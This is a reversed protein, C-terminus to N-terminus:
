APDPAAQHTAGDIVQFVEASPRGTADARSWGTMTEAVRNLYTVKGELDTAVVADGISNLTVRAREQEAFLAAEAERLVRTALTRETVDEVTHVHGPTETGDPLPASSVRAWVVSGDPRQFRLETRFPTRATAAGRWEAFVRRRDEPHIVRSWNNGSAQEWSLGSIKQYAPNTYVCGGRADSVLIGLPAADSVARFRAESSRLADQTTKREICYRLAHPLSRLDAQDKLFFDQAGHQRVAQRATAEDDAACLVLVAANPVAEFVQDFAEIGLSDPLRLDLLVVDIRGKSLRDLTDALRTVWEVHFLGGDVGALAEQVMAAVAPDDEALLVNIPPANM